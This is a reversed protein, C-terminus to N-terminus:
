YLYFFLLSSTQSYYYFHFATYWLHKEHAKLIVVNCGFDLSSTLNSTSNFQTVVIKLQIILKSFYIYKEM